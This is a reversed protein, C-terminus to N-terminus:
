LLFGIGGVLMGLTGVGMVGVLGMDVGPVRVGAAAGKSTSSKASATGTTGSTHSSGLTKVGVAGTATQTVSVGSAVGSVFPIGSENSQLEVVKSGTANFNTQALAVENNKLDYVVYASRLFTDGLLSPSDGAPFLGLVCTNKFPLDQSSSQGGSETGSGYIGVLDFILESIPVSIIPGSSGGFGYNVTVASATTRYDCNVYVNGTNSTDDVAGFQEYVSAALADPIYTLTTGSDLIVPAAYSDNTLTTTNGAQGTISLSSLAVTFSSITGSDVDAQIPLAILAGTYKETDIGGFLISGTSSELDDLYLSYAKVSILGQSVLEDIINPYTNYTAENSDYGIGLIGVGVTTDFALGFQLNKVTSGGITVSDTAYDGESGTGDQYAIDFGGADVTKFTSSKNSNFTGGTCGGYYYDQLQKETCLDATTDLVWLDASGTDLAVSISQPPTGVTINAMYSGGTVNNGLECLM